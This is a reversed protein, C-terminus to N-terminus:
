GDAKDKLIEQIWPDVLLDGTPTGYDCDPRRTVPGDNRQEYATGDQEWWMHYTESTTITIPVLEEDAHPDAQWAKVGLINFKKPDESM